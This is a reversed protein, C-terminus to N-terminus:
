RWRLPTGWGSFPPGTHLRLECQQRYASNVIFQPAVQPITTPIGVCEFHTVRDFTELM